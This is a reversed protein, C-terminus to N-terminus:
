SHYSFLVPKVSPTLPELSFNREQLLAIIEPLAEATAAHATDDHLLLIIRDLSVLSEETRLVLEEANMQAGDAGGDVSLNWDYPVFGRRVMEALLEQYIGANYSNISGGVFRFVTPKVGTASEITTCLAYMDALYSEVSAYVTSHDGSWSGMGLTHGAEVISRLWAEYRPDDAADGSVFFTARIGAQELLALLADTNESPISTFTLYAAGSIRQTADYPQPAYFEPYLTQYTLPDSEIEDLSSIETGLDEELLTVAEQYRHHFVLALTTLTAVLVVIFLLIMNKYFRVSGIYRPKESM